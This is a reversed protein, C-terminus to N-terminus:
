GREWTWRMEHVLPDVSILDNGLKTDIYLRDQTKEGFSATTIAALGSTRVSPGAASVSIADNGNTRPRLRESRRPIRVHRPRHSAPNSAGRRGGNSCRRVAM